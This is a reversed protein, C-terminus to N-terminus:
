LRQCTRCYLVRVNNLGFTSMPNSEELWLMMRVMVELASRM